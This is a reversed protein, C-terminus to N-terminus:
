AFERNIAIRRNEKADLDTTVVLVPQYLRLDLFECVSLTSIFACDGNNDDFRDHVWDSQVM